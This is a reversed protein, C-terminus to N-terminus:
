DGKYARKCRSIVAPAPLGILRILPLPDAAWMGKIGDNFESFIAKKSPDNMAEVLALTVENRRYWEHAHVRHPRLYVHLAHELARSGDVMGRLELTGPISEQYFRLRTAMNASYGFKIAAMEVFEVAYFVEGKVLEQAFYRKAKRSLKRALTTHTPEDRDFYDKPIAQRFDEPRLQGM